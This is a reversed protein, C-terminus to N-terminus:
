ILKNKTMYEEVETEITTADNGYRVLLGSRLLKWAGTKWKKLELRKPAVWREPKGVCACTGLYDFGLERLTM